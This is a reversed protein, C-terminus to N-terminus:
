RWADGSSLVQLNSVAETIDGVFREFSVGGSMMNLRALPM